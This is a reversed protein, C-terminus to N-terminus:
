NQIVIFESRRNKRHQEKTCPVGNACKNKLLTEGYGKSKVREPEIGKEMIYTASALARKQSLILNYHDSGKSDTHSRVEIEILPNSKLYHVVRDLEVIAQKSIDFKNPKFYISNLKLLKVLDIGKSPPTVNILYISLVLSPDQSTTKIKKSVPAFGEKNIFINYDVDICDVPITFNGLADSTGTNIVAGNKTKIQITADSIIDRSYEDRVTGKISGKCDTLIPTTEEFMYIDDDGKGGPRNSSFYGKRTRDNIIFTIDDSTSNIPEGLNYVKKNNTGLSTVFIDFGGLGLHGDSAFYLMDDESVFPFTDRGETNIEPGMNRPKSFNNDELIDVVYIDSKGYGGPMDSVFYLKKNDNSLTPHATSYLDDNFSLEEIYDWEGRENLDAKVIKLRRLRLSDLPSITNQNNNITFYITSGSNTFCSTSEHFKLDLEEAFELPHLIQGTNEIFGGYMKLYPKNAWTSTEISADNHVRSSSFVLQDNYFSPAFDQNTSNSTLNTIIYRGSQRAIKELYLPNNLFRKASPNESDFTILQNMLKHAEEYKELHKLSQVARIYYESPLPDGTNIMKEYWKAADKLNSNFYYCDGLKKYLELSAIGKSAASEYLNIAEAFEYQEYNM